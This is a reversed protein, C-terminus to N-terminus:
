VWDRFYITFRLSQKEYYVYISKNMSTNMFSKSIIKLRLSTVDLLVVIKRIKPMKLFFSMNFVNM